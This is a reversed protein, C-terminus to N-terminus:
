SGYMLHNPTRRIRQGWFVQQPLMLLLVSQSIGDFLANSSITRWNYRGWEGAMRSMNRIMDWETHSVRESYGWEATMVTEGESPSCAPPTGVTITISLFNYCRWWRRRGLTRTATARDKQYRTMIWTNLSNLSSHRRFKPWGRSISIVKRRKTPCM